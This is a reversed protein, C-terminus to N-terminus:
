AQGNTTGGNKALQQQISSIAVSMKAVTTGLQQVMNEISPDNEVKSKDITLKDFEEQSVGVWAKGNFHPDLLSSDPILFTENNALQYDDSVEKGDVFRGKDDYVTVIKM